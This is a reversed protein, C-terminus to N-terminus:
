IEELGELLGEARMAKRLLIVNGVAHGRSALVVRCRKIADQVSHATIDLAASVEAVTCGDVYLRSVKVVWPSLYGRTKVSYTSAPRVVDTM